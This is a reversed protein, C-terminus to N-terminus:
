LVRPPRLLPRLAGALYLSGAVVVLGGGARARQLAAAPDAVAEARDRWAEHAALEAPDAGRAADARTCFVRAVRPALMRVLRDIEKDRAIAFVLAPRAGPFHDELAQLLAAVSADNHAGDLLVNRLLECAAPLEISSLGRVVADRGLDELVASALAANRGQHRGLVPIPVGDLLIGSLGRIEVKGEPVFRCPAGRAVAVDRLVRGPGSGPDVNTFLPVGPRAIAAKEAAIKELTEGLLDMHDFSIGTIVSATSPVVTTADLRGGLGVELVVAETSARAFHLCAAATLAEFFTTGAEAARLTEGVARAFDREAIPAGGVAIREEVRELHPSLYRGTRLGAARLISDLFRCTSGKGKTGAVQIVRAGLREHPSGLRELLRRPRDLSYARPGDPRTREYNTLRSLAEIAERTSEV